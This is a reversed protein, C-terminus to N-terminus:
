ENGQREILGDRIAHAIGAVRVGFFRSFEGRCKVRERITLVTHCNHFLSDRLVQIKKSLILM